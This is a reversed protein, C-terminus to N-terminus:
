QLIMNLKSEDIADEKFSRISRRKSLFDLFSKEDMM